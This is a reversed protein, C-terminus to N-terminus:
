STEVTSNPAPTATADLLRINSVSLRSVPTGANAVPANLTGGVPLIFPIGEPAATGNVVGDTLAGNNPLVLIEKDIHFSKGFPLSLQAFLWIENKNKLYLKVTGKALKVDVTIECTKLLNCKFAGADMNLVYIVIEVDLNELDITGAVQM